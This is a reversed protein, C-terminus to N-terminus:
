TKGIGAEGGIMVSTPTGAAARDAAVALRALEETRGVFAPSTLTATMDVLIAGGAGSAFSGAPEGARQRHDTAVSM